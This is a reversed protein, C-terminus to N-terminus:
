VTHGPLGPSIKLASFFLRHSPLHNIDDAMKKNSLSASQCYFLWCYFRGAGDPSGILDFGIIAIPPTGGALVGSLPFGDPKRRGGHTNRLTVIPPSPLSPSIWILPQRHSIHEFICWLNLFNTLFNNLLIPKFCLIGSHIAKELFGL